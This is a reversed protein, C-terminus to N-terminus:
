EVLVEDVVIYYSYSDGANLNFVLIQLAEFESLEPYANVQTHTTVYSSPTVSMDASYRNASLGSDVSAYIDANADGGNILLRRTAAISDATTISAAVAIELFVFLIKWKHGQTPGLNTPSTTTLANGRLIRIM